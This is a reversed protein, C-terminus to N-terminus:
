LPVSPLRIEPEFEQALGYQAAAAFRGLSDGPRGALGPHRCRPLARVGSGRGGFGSNAPHFTRERAGGREGLKTRERHLCPVTGPEREDYQFGFRGRVLHGAEHRALFVERPRGLKRGDPPEQALVGGINGGGILAIKKLM